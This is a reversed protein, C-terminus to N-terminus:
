ATARRSRRRSTRGRRPGAAARAPHRRRRDGLLRGGDADADGLPGPRDAPQGDDLGLVRSPTPVIGQEEGPFQSGPRSASASSGAGLRLLAPRRARPRDEGRRRELVPRPDPRRHPERARPGRRRLDDPRGGPARDAPRVVTSPTVLHESSRGPSPSRRSPRAPSTPSARHGHEAPGAPKAAAPDSPDVTPWNAMALIQPTARTWSSRPRARRSTPRARRERAGGRDAGPHRRRADAQLDQGQRAGHLDHQARDGQRARRAGGRARRQRRRAHHQRGGRARHPGPRRGGRDRDGPRRAQGGPLDRRSSPVTTSRRRARAQPDQGGDDPRGRPGPLRLGLLREALNKLIDHESVHLIPALQRATAAPDKVQYPTAIVDAADESVALERGKRDLISGRSGPVPVTQTQQSQADASLGGGQVGQVWAARGIALVLLLLFSAFLLGIRREIM